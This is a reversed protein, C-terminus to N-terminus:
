SEEDRLENVTRLTPQPVGAKPQFLQVGNRVKPLVKAQLSQRALQSIIQGLTVGEKKALQKATSLLDDDLELTTRMYNIYRM